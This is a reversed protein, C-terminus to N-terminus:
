EISPAHSLTFNQLDKPVAAGQQFAMEHEAAAQVTTLVKLAGEGQLLHGDNLPEAASQRVLHAGQLGGGHDGRGHASQHEAL